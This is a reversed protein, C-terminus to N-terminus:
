DLAGLGATLVAVFAGCGIWGHGGGVRCVARFVAWDPAEVIAERSDRFITGGAWDPDGPITGAM